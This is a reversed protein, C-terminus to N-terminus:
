WRKGSCPAGGQHRLTFVDCHQSVFLFIRSMTRRRALGYGLRAGDMFLYLGYKRCVSSLDEIERGAIFHGYETPNSIYVMKPQVRISLPIMM